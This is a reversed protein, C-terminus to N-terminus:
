GDFAELIAQAVRQPHSLFPAHAADDIGISHVSALHNALWDGAAPPTLKDLGGHIVWTPTAIQSIQARLDTHLLIELGASLAHPEPLPQAFFTARLPQLLAKQEPIGRTQLSLFRLLTARTDRQMDEGFARLEAAAIGAHWDDAAVFKPTTSILILRRIREPQDLAIRLAIQGGLSWGLLVCQTPLQQAIHAAWTALTNNPLAATGGHGPLALPLLTAHTQLLNLLGDFVRPNMGWGHLLALTPKSSM